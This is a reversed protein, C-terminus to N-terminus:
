NAGKKFDVIPFNLSVFSLAVHCFCADEPTLGDIKTNRPRRSVSDHSVLTRTQTCTRLASSAPQQCFRRMPTRAHQSQLNKLCGDKQKATLMAAWKMLVHYEKKAFERQDVSKSEEAEATGLWAEFPLNVSKQKGDRLPNKERKKECNSVSCPSLHLM